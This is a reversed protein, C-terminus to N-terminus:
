NFVPIHTSEVLGLRPCLPESFIISWRESSKRRSTHGAQLKFHKAKVGPYLLKAVNQLTSDTGSTKTPPLGRVENHAVLNVLIM